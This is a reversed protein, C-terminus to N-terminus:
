VDVRKWLELKYPDAVDCEVKIGLLMAGIDARYPIVGMNRATKEGIRWAYKSRDDEILRSLDYCCDAIESVTMGETTM